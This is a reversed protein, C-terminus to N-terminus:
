RDLSKVTKEWLINRYSLLNRSGTSGESARRKWKQKWSLGFGKVRMLMFSILSHLVPLHNTEGHEIPSSEHSSFWQSQALRLKQMKMKLPINGEQNLRYIDVTFLIM